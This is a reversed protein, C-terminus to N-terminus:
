SVWVRVRVRVRARVRARVRVRVRVKVRVRIKDQVLAVLGRRDLELDDVVVLDLRGLVEEHAQQADLAARELPPRVEDLDPTPGSGM